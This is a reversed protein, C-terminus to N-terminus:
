AIMQYIRMLLEANPHKKRYTKLQCGILGLVLITAGLILLFTNMKVCSQFQFEISFLYFLFYM